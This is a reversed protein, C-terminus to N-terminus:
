FVQEQTSDKNIDLMFHFANRAEYNITDIPVVICHTPPNDASGASADINDDNMRFVRILAHRFRPLLTVMYLARKPIWFISTPCRLLSWLDFPLEMSLLGRTRVKVGVLRTCPEWSHPPDGHVLGEIWTIGLDVTPTCCMQEKNPRNTTVLHDRIPRQNAQPIPLYDYSNRIERYSSM